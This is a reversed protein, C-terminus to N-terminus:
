RASLCETRAGHVQMHLPFAHGTHPLPSKHHADRKRQAHPTRTDVKISDVDISERNNLSCVQYSCEVLLCYTFGQLLM